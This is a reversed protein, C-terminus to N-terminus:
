FYSLTRSYNITYTDSGMQITKRQETWNGYEDYRSYDYKYVYTADLPFPFSRPKSDVKSPVLEGGKDIQSIGSLPIANNPQLTMRAEARDGHDNYTIATTVEVVFNRQRVEALRGQADYSYSTGAGRKGSIVTMMARNLAELEKENMKERHEAPLKELLPPGLNEHFQKEELIDGQADFTRISRFVIRGEEDLTQLEAPHGVDDWLIRVTGSVPVPIEDQAHEWALDMAVATAQRSIQSRTTTIESVRGREDYRYSTESQQGDPGGSIIKIVRGAGDLTRTSTWEASAYIARTTLLRGQLDYVTETTHHNAAGQEFIEKCARVPGRLGAKERDTM